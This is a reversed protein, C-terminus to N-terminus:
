EKDEQLIQNIFWKIAIYSTIFYIVCQILLAYIESSVHHTEAGMIRVRLYAPVMFTSPFVYFLQRLFTPIGEVPWTAGTTFMVPISLFVMFLLANERRRFFVAITMGFFIIATLYPVYLTLLEWYSTKHPYGFWSHVWVLSFMGILMFILFYALFKGLVFHMLKVDRTNLEKRISYKRIEKRTGGLIGIGILLTQQIIVLILPPMVFSGYSAYPNYLDAVEFKVPTYSQLASQMNSGKILEKHIFIGGNLTTYTFVASSYLQKYLLFYSADAYISVSSQEGAQVRKAFGDPISVIGRVKSDYFLEKASEMNPVRRSVKVGETADLMRIFKRSIVSNDRDVIAIDLDKVQEPSYAGCYILPYILNAVIFVLLIAPDSMITKLEEWTYSGINFLDKKPKM